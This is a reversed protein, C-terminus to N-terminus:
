AEAGKFVIFKFVPQETTTGGTTFSTIKFSGAAINTVFIEYLDTGSKQVCHVFDGIAVASNTVTFTAATASGAASVLTIAGVVTNLTVGTTRSSAQTVAGGAGTAYGLGGTPNNIKFSGDQDLVATNTAAVTGNPTCNLSIQTGRASESQTQTTTMFISAATVWTSGGYTRLNWRVRRATETATLAGYAGNCISGSFSSDNGTGVTLVEISGATAARQVYLGHGPFVVGQWTTSSTSDSIVVDQASGAISLIGNSGTSPRLNLGGVSSVTLLNSSNSIASSASGGFVLSGAQINVNDAVVNLAWKTTIIANTGAAPAGQISVTSATTITGSASAFSYTPVAFNVARQTAVGTNSAFQRTGFEFSFDISEAGATLTTDSPSTFTFPKTSGTAIVSPQFALRGTSSVTMTATGDLTTGTSAYYAVRTATGSNVTGAGSGPATWSLNGSGDTTLVWTNTGATAPWKATWTGAADNVSMTFTGSTTGKFVAAGTTGSAAGITITSPFTPATAFVLNGTGTAGASTVGEITQHGTFTNAADTRALTASTTPFTMTTSDTGALTLTNSVTLTKSSTGGAVSFGTALALCTLGNVTTPTIAGLTLTIAPTTTATAVSGSIGNATVVSVTTVTGAGVANLTGSSFSLNSGITVATWTNTASLYYIKGTTSLAALADLNASWAEVNTGIDLGIYAQAAADDAMELLGRGYSTSTLGSIPTLNNADYAQVNAGIVLGFYTQAAGANALALVSRGYSTSAILAIADLDADWAQVNTGIVAGILTRAAAANALELFSRGYSITTLAAIATLNSNLPQYSGSLGPIDAAVLTRFTPTADAGTAPGAFVKNAAQTALTVGITGSVTIPSSAVAFIGPMSLGVSLVTGGGANLPPNTTYTTISLTMGKTVDPNALVTGSYVTRVAGTNGDQAQVDFVYEQNARLLVWDQPVLEVTIEGAAADDVTIGGVTSIKQVLADTDPDTANRKLTFILVNNTPNFPLDTDPNILSLALACTDGRYRTLTATSM